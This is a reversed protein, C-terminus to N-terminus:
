ETFIYTSSRSLRRWQANHICAEGFIVDGMPKKKTFFLFSNKRRGNKLADVCQM